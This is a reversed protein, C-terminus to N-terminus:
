ESPSYPQVFCIGQSVMHLALYLFDQMVYSHGRDEVTVKGWQGAWMWGRVNGKMGKKLHM